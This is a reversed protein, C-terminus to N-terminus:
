LVLMDQAGINTLLNRHMKQRRATDAVVVIVVVVVVVVVVAVVAVIVLVRHDSAIGRFFVGVSHGRLAGAVLSHEEEGIVVDGRVILLFHHLSRLILFSCISLVLNTDCQQTTNYIM